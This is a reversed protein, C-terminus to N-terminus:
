LKEGWFRRLKVKLDNGDEIRETNWDKVLQEKMREDSYRADALIIFGRDNESRIVRGAAQFVRNLGPMDYSLEKGDLGIDTFLMSQAESEANPPALGVGVIIVGHLADGCLDIGESFSGGLVAFGVLSSDGITMQTFASLFEEKEARKMNRKQIVTRDQPYSHIYQGYLMDMYEFSPLFVLYNGKKVNSAIHILRCLSSATRDRDSFKVSVEANMILRNEQPFPSPLDLFVDRDSGGLMTLYYSEPLLTASFYVSSGYMSAVADITDSPDVLYLKAGVEETVIFTYNRKVSKDFRDSVLMFRSCLFYLDRVKRDDLPTVDASDNYVDSSRIMYERLAEGLRYVSATLEDDQKFFIYKGGETSATKLYKLRKETDRAAEYVKKSVNKANRIFYSLDGITIEASYNERVREPLNHAEDILLLYRSKSENKKISVFPDFIYNYDCIVIDCFEAADMSLEFPCVKYKRSYLLIQEADIHYSSKLLELLAENVRTYHDISNECIDNEKGEQAQGCYASTSAKCEEHKCLSQRSSLAISRLYPKGGQLIDLTEKVQEKISNKPTIYFVREIKDKQLLKLAPYLVSITKGIGTPASAFVKYGRKGGSYVEKILERQGSRMSSFPFTLKDLRERGDLYRNLGIRAFPRLKEILDGFFESLEKFTYIRERYEPEAGDTPIYVISIGIRSLKKKLSLMYGYCMAQALHLPDAFVEKDPIRTVSKIEYIRYLEGELAIGDAFGSIEIKHDPMDANVTLHAEAIFYENRERADEQFRKHIERGQQLRKSLNRYSGNISGRRLAFCVLETVSLSFIPKGGSETLTRM